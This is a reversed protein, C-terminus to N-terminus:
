ERSICIPILNISISQVFYFFFCFSSLFTSYIEEDLAKVKGRKKFLSINAAHDKGTGDVAIGALSFGCRFMDGFFCPVPVKECELVYVGM